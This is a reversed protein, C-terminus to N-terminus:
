ESCAHIFIINQSGHQTSLCVSWRTMYRAQALAWLLGALVTFDGRRRLATLFSGFARPRSARPPAGAPQRSGAAPQLSGFWGDVTHVVVVAGHPFSRSSQVARGGCVAGGAAAAVDAEREASTVASSFTPLRRSGTAPGAHARGDDVARHASQAGLVLRTRTMAAAADQGRVDERVGAAVIDRGGGRGGGLRSSRSRRRRREGRLLV